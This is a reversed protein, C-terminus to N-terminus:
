ICYARIRERRMEELGVELIHGGEGVKWDCGIDEKGSVVRNSGDKRGGKQNM